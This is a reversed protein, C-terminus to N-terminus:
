LFNEAIALTPDKKPFPHEGEIGAGVFGEIWEPEEDLKEEKKFVRKLVSGLENIASEVVDPSVFLQFGMHLLLIHFILNLKQDKKCKTQQVEQLM